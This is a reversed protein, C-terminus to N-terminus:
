PVASPRPKPIPELKWGGQPRPRIAEHFRHESWLQVQTRDLLVGIREPEIHLRSIIESIQEVVRGSTLSADEYSDIGLIGGLDVYKVKCQEFYWFAAKRSFADLLFSPVPRIDFLLTPRDDTLFSVFIYRTAISMDVIFLRATPLPLQLQTGIPVDPTPKPARVLQLHAQSRPNPKPRTM